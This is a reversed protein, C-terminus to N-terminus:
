RGAVPPRITRVRIGPVRFLPSTPRETTVFEDAGLVQAAALHLADLGNLGYRAALDFAPDTLVAPDAFEVVADFLSEYFAVEAARRGHIAKPMVELRVFPSSLFVRTEDDLVAIAAPMVDPQRGTAAAIVVGADVCTRIM